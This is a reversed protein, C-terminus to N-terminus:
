TKQTQSENPTTTNQTDSGAWLRWLRMVESSARIEPDVENVVQGLERLKNKEYIEEATLTKGFLPQFSLVSLGSVRSITRHITM